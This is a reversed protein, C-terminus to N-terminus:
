GARQMHKNPPQNAGEQNVVSAPTAKNHSYERHLAMVSVVENRM